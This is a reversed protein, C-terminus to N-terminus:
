KNCVNNVNNSLLFLVQVIFFNTQILPFFDFDINLSVYGFRPSLVFAITLHEYKALYQNSGIGKHEALGAALSTM